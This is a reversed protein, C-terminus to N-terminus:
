QRSFPMTMCRIGGGGRSLESGDITIIYKEYDGPSTKGAMIDKARLIDFGLGNLEELTYNNRDYGILKGPGVAFFNAGSHWQEREQVTSDKRGGCFAPRLDMNLKKLTSLINEVARISKVEGNDLEIHVTEYRNPLLILPEYVMCLDNDLLTFVMDLHIFSEPSEPLEQIIIHWTKKDQRLQEVLFDVGRTNTRAGIGILLIDHRAVLVDGGEITVPKDFIDNEDALMTQTRFSPHYTFIADMIMAERHRVRTAMNAILVRDNIAVASDRTFFFNHLPELAFNEESLFNTLTKKLLPVGQILIRSLAEADKEFLYDLLEPRKKSYCTKKIMKERVEESSLIDKLLEEVKLTKTVLNLSHELQSYEKRAVSLNLIDSYLAREANKPTMNEVEPGPPHIIVGELKGIESNVKVAPM